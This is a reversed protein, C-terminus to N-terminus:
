VGVASGQLALNCMWSTDILKQGPTYGSNEWLWARGGGCLLTPRSIPCSGKMIWQVVFGAMGETCCLIGHMRRMRYCPSSQSAFGAKPDPWM